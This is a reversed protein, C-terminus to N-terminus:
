TLMVLGTLYFLLPALDWPVGARGGRDPMVHDFLSVELYSAREVPPLAAWFRRSESVPIFSDGRDHLVYVPAKLGSLYTRPSVRQLLRTVQQPLAAVYIAAEEPTCGSLLGLLRRGDPSLGAIDEPATVSAGSWRRELLEIVEAREDEDPLSATILGRSFRDVVWPAPVWATPGQDGAIQHTAMALLLGGADYYGGFWHLFAVQGSIRPDAAAIAALSAGLSFGLIAVRQQKVYPAARLHQFAGVLTEEYRTDSGATLLHEAALQPDERAENVGGVDPVLVALGIRALADVGRRVNPEDLDLQLGPVLLAGTFQGQAPRVIWGSAPGIGATPFEAREHILAPRFAALAPDGQLDLLVLTSRSLAGVTPAAAAVLAILLLGVM